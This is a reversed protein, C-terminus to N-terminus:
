SGRWPRGAGPPTRPARPPPAPPPPPWPSTHRPRPPRQHNDPIVLVTRRPPYRMASYVTRPHPPCPAPTVLGTVRPRCTQSRTMVRWPLCARPCTSPCRPRPTPRPRWPPQQRSPPTPSWRWPAASGRCPPCSGAGTSSRWSGSGPRSSRPAPRAPRTSCSPSWAPTTRACSAGRGGSSPATWWSSARTSGARAGPARWAPCCTSSMLRSFYKLKLDSMPYLCM